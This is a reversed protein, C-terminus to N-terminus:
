ELDRVKFFLVVVNLVFYPILVTVAIILGLVSSELVNNLDIVSPMFSHWVCFALYACVLMPVIGKLKAGLWAFWFALPLTMTPALSIMADGYRSAQHQVFGYLLWQGGADDTVVHPIINFHAPNAGFSLAALYHAGEHFFTGPVTFYACLLPFDIIFNKFLAQAILTSFLILFFQSRESM